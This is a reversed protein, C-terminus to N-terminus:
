KCLGFLKFDFGDACGPQPPVGGNPYFDAHGMSNFYGTVGGSTHIIDVFLADTKKLGKKQISAFEFGPGAPDLGLISIRDNYMRDIVVALSSRTIAIKKKKIHLGFYFLLTM